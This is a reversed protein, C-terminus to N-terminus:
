DVVLETYYYEFQMKIVRWYARFAHFHRAILLVPQHGGGGGGGGGGDVYYYCYYHYYFISRMLKTAALSTIQNLDRGWGRGSERLLPLPADVAGTRSYTMHM